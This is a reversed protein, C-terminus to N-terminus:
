FPAIFERLIGTQRRFPSIASDLQRCCICKGLAAAAAATATSSMEYRIGALLPVGFSIILSSWLGPSPLRVFRGKIKSACTVLQRSKLIPAQEEGCNPDCRSFFTEMDAGNIRKTRSADPAATEGEEKRVGCQPGDLTRPAACRM